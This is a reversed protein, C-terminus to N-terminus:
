PLFGWSFHDAAWSFALALWRWSAAASGAITLWKVTEDVSLFVPSLWGLAIASFWGVGAWGLVAVICGAWNAQWAAAADGHMLLSISTTMGCSPCPIGTIMLMSCPPIGLQQHTGHTRPRGESDYPNLIAAILFVLGGLLAFGLSLTRERRAEQAAPLPPPALGVTRGIGAIGTSGAPSRELLFSQTM